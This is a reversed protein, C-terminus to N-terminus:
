RAVVVRSTSMGLPGDVRAVYVGSAVRRGADDRGDWTLSFPGAHASSRTGNFLERVVRGSVDLIQASVVGSTPLTFDITTPGPTPNPFM